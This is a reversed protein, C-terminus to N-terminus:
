VQLYQLLCGYLQVRLAPQERRSRQLLELLVRLMEHCRLSPSAHPPKTHSSLLNLPTLPCGAYM